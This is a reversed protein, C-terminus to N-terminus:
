CELHILLTQTYSTSSRGELHKWRLLLEIVPVTSQVLETADPEILIHARRDAM